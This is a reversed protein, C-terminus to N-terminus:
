KQEALTKLNQLGTEFHSGAVKDMNAFVSMLKMIYLNTGHMSWIVRTSTGEAEFVFENINHASFPKTFDVAVSVKRPPDSETISMKGAGASGKSTWASVAGTGSEAGSFTRTMTSDERDQPAWRTWNHFDNILAFIKEPSAQIIRSRQVSFTDPKTAAFVLVGVIVVAIVALVKLIM